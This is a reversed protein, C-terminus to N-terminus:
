AQAAQAVLEDIRAPDLAGLHPAGVPVSSVLLGGDDFLDVRSVSPARVAGEGHPQLGYWTTFPSGGVWVPIGAITGASPLHTHGALVVRVDTGALVDGLRERDRLRIATGLRSPSPLPPHHLALVTGDPAPDALQAALWALREDPLEGHARGPVTSDVVVVRLGDLHTVHDLPADSPPEGLLHERLAARDDHNGAACLV